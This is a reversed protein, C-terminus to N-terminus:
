TATLCTVQSTEMCSILTDIFLRSEYGQVSYPQSSVVFNRCFKTVDVRMPPILFQVLFCASDNSGDHLVYSEPLEEGNDKTLRLSNLLLCVFEM